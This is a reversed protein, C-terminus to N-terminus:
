LLTRKLNAEMPIATDNKMTYFVFSSIVRDRMATATLGPNDPQAQGGRQHISDM